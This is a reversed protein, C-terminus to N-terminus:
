HGVNSKLVGKKKYTWGTPPSFTQLTCCPIIIIVYHDSFTQINTTQCKKDAWKNARGLLNSLQEWFVSKPQGVWDNWQARVRKFACFIPGLICSSSPFKKINVFENDGMYVVWLLFSFVIFLFALLSSSSLVVNEKKSTYGVRRFSSNQMSFWIKLNQHEKGETTGAAMGIPLHVNKWITAKLLLWKWSQWGIRWHLVYYTGRVKFFWVWNWCFGGM